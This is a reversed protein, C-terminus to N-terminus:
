QGGAEDEYANPVNVEISGDLGTAFEQLDALWVIPDLLRPDKMRALFDAHDPHDANFVARDRFQDNSFTGWNTMRFFSIRTAGVRHALDVADGMERYNDRQVIFPLDFSEVLGDRVLEGAFALNELMVPWRAGRRLLEHTPGTAADISVRLNKVRGHLTPFSEWQRRTFLMGNTLILFKLDPYAEPTLDAILQRFNKSAFPDGAGSLYVTKANVLMPLIAREQMVAFRDRTAGDAAIKAVRCSPCSLNCTLDYALNVIRPGNALKVASTELVEQWYASRTALNEAPILLNAQIAPCAGKNCYRYSGDHISARIAQATESNWVDQWSDAQLNGASTALWSACCLHTSGDLVDMQVFPKKCIKGTLEYKPNGPDALGQLHFLAGQVLPSTSNDTALPTLADIVPQVEGLAAASMCLLLKLPVMEMHDPIQALRYEIADLLMPHAAVFDPIISWLEPHDLRDSLVSLMLNVVQDAAEAAALDAVRADDVSPINAVFM